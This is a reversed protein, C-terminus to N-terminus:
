TVEAFIAYVSLVIRARHRHPRVGNTLQIYERVLGSETKIKLVELLRQRVRSLHRSMPPCFLIKRFVADWRDKEFDQWFIGGQNLATPIRRFRKLVSVVYVLLISQETTQCPQAGAKKYRPEDNLISVRYFVFKITFPNRWILKEAIRGM